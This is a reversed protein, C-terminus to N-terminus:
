PMGKGDLTRQYREMFVKIGVDGNALIIEAHVESPGCKPTELRLTNSRM